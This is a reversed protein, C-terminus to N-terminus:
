LEASAFGRWARKGCRLDNQISCGGHTHTVQAVITYEGNIKIPSARDVTVPDGYALRM